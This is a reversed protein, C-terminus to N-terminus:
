NRSGPLGPMIGPVPWYGLLRYHLKEPWRLLGSFLVDHQYIMVYRLGDTLSKLFIMESGFFFPYHLHVIDFGKLGFLKPLFPANGIRFLVPLRCVGIEEPYTYDGPPHNATFVTVQHGLRALGLANHYCV